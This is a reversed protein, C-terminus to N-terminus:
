TAEWPVWKRTTCKHTLREFTGIGGHESSRKVVDGPSGSEVLIDGVDTRFRYSSTVESAPTWPLSLLDGDKRPVVHVHLHFVTQTAEPGVSTIINMPGRGHGYRTAELVVLATVEPSELADQVHAMPLFIVHGETVPNLPVIGVVEGSSHVVEAPSRGAIIECFVCDNNHM